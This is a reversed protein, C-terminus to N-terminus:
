ILYFEPMRLIANFLARLKSQIATRKAPDDPDGLFDSYEVTWEFDPLGPILVDKLFDLQNQSLPTVFVHEAIGQILANPDTDNEIESIFDIFDFSLRIDGLSVGEVLSQILEDRQNLTVSNVWFQYFQPAQFYAKWGAVTPFQYRNMGLNDAVGFMGVYILQAAQFDEPFTFKFTNLMKILFDVPSSIMCGRRAENNFYESRLLARLPAKIDYDNDIMIQAMPEIVNQEVEENIDSGVFWIHLKRCLFRATDSKALIIDIVRRYENEGENQIVVDNFRHSLQKTGQDHRLNFFTAGPLDNDGFLVPFWGTLARAMAAVDQETYTTYDGEGALEGRGLTFLEMLERAYNDNPAQAINEAGNLYVLMSPSITIDYILDRFNGLAHIRFLNSYQYLARSNNIDATPFHENWFLVMKERIHVGGNVALDMNWGALSRARAATLGTVDSLPSFVWTELNNVLPDDDFLTYVPPEANPIDEFLRELTLDLGEELSTNINSVTPTFCARNLLHVAHARTWEGSYAELSNLGLSTAGSASANGVLTKLFNRKNM